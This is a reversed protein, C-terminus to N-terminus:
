LDEERLFKSIDRKHSQKQSLNEVFNLDEASVFEDKNKAEQRRKAREINQEAKYVDIISNEIIAFIYTAKNIPNAFEKNRVAWMIDDYKIKVTHLITKHSYFNLQKIKRYIIPPPKQGPECGFFDKAMIDILEARATKEECWHDYVEKSKYYSRGVKYFTDSTGYEKTIQCRVKRAM